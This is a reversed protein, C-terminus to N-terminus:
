DQDIEMRDIFEETDTLSEENFTEEISVPNPTWDMDDIPGESINQLAQELKARPDSLSISNIEWKGIESRLLKFKDYRSTDSFLSMLSQCQLAMDRITQNSCLHRHVAANRVKVANNLGTELDFRSHPSYAHPPVESPLTIKWKALEVAEACDWGMENLKKPIWILSYDYCAEELIREMLNLIYHQVQYPLSIDVAKSSFKSVSKVSKKAPPYQQKKM